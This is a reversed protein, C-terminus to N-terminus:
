TKLLILLAVGGAAILFVPNTLMSIGGGISKSISSVGKGLGKGLGSLGSGLGKGTSVLGKGLGKNIPNNVISKIGKNVKINPIGKKKMFGLFKM